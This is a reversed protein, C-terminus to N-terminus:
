CSGNRRRGSNAGQDTHLLLQEPEIQRHGLARILAELVVATDMTAGIAWGVVRRSYPDIWVALYRWGATTRIDTITVNERVRRGPNLLRQRWADFGRRTM